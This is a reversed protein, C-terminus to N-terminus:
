SFVLITKVRNLLEKPANPLIPDINLERTDLITIFVQHLGADEHKGVVSYNKFTMVRYPPVIMIHRCYKDAYSYHYQKYKSSLVVEVPCHLCGWGESYKLKAGCMPCNVPNKM